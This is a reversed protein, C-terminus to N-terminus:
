DIVVVDDSVSLSVISLLFSVRGDLWLDECQKQIPTNLLFEVNDGEMLTAKIGKDTPMERKSGEILNLLTDHPGPTVDQLILEPDDKTNSMYLSIQM